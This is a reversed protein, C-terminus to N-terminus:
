DASGRRVEQEMQDIVQDITLNTTDIIVADVAPEMPALDRLEDRHDRENQLRLVDHFSITDGQQQLELWRRRARVEPDAKLFFKRAADPFVFTGQDRGECVMDRGDAIQRQWRALTRRILAIAALQSALSSIDPRRIIDSVDDGNLLVRGQLMELRLSGVIQTLSPQDDLAIGARLVAVAVARYMAGTDLVEFGLRQALAKSATSKGSGAPGDITVIM